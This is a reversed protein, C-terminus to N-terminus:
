MNYRFLGVDSILPSPLSPSPKFSLFWMNNLLSYFIIYDAGLNLRDLMNSLSVEFKSWGEHITVVFSLVTQVKNNKHGATTFTM